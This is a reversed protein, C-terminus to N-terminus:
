DDPTSHDLNLDSLDYKLFLPGYGFDYSMVGQLNPSLPQGGIFGYIGNASDTWNLSFTVYLTQAQNAPIQAHQHPLEELPVDVMDETRLQISFPEGSALFASSRFLPVSIPFDNENRFVFPISLRFGRTEVSPLSEPLETNKFTEWGGTFTNWMAPANPNVEKLFNDVFYDSTSFSNEIYLLDTLDDWKTDIQPDLPRALNLAQESLNVQTTCNWCTLTPAPITVNTELMAEIFPNTLQGLEGEILLDGFPILAEKLANLDIANWGNGIWEVRIPDTSKSIAPPAPIKVPISKELTLTRKEIKRKALEKLLPAYASSDISFKDTVNLQYNPLLDTFESVDIDISAHFTFQGQSGLVPALTGRNIRFPYVVRISSNAPVITDVEAWLSSLENENLKIGMRHTPIPLPRPYPNRFRYAVNMELDFNTFSSQNIKPEFGEFQATPLIDEIVLLNTKCSVIAITFASLWLLRSLYTTM